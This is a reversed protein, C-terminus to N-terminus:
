NKLCRVSIAYDKSHIILDASEYDYRLRMCYVAYSDDEDLSASYFVAELGNMWFCTGGPCGGWYGAPLASFGYADSGNGSSGDDDNWGSSSKLMKGAVESGGVATRLADWEDYSPLHWGEPCIGRVNGEPECEAEYGCGKGDNSFAAVSDMAAAWTYLRAYKECYEASDNYCWSLIISDKAGKPLYNPDYNLNEAMWVQDGIKVTKYIQGDRDDTIYGYKQVVGESCYHTAPDFAISGCTAKFLTTTDASEDDGADDEDGDDGKDGKDSVNEETSALSDLTEGKELVTSDKQDIENAETADDVCASM